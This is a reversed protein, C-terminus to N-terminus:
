GLLELHPTPQRVPDPCVAFLQEYRVFGTTDAGYRTGNVASLRSSFRLPGRHLLGLEADMAKILATHFPENPVHHLFAGLVRRREIRESRSYHLEGLSSSTYRGVAAITFALVSVSSASDDLTIHLVQGPLEAPSLTKDRISRYLGRQQAM